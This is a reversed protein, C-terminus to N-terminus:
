ATALEIGHPLDLEQGAYEVHLVRRRHNNRAKSSAHVLLPRMAVVGGATSLCEVARRERSLRGLQENDLIGFLHTGPLVRLPGNTTTNDDLHIRLAVVNALADAPAHAYLIGTKVSWPGWGAADVQRRLPLATDQHWSVLWNTAPSKDFLTARFPAAITGLASSAIQLLRGDEAFRRIGPVGMLHRAGARSRATSERALLEAIADIEKPAFVDPFLGFGLDSM